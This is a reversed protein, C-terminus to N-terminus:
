STIFQNTFAKSVDVDTKLLHSDRLFKYTAQWSNADTYGLGNKSTMDSQWYSLTEQLVKRQLQTDGHQAEPIYALAISFGEDPDNIVDQMGKITAQVFARVVNPDQNILTESTILGDSALPIYDSVRIINTKIGQQELQIPENNGYGVGVQVKDQQVAQVQTFGIEQVNLDNETMNNAYLLAQLGIYSAGFRGPVGVSKGKLDAPRTINEAVKSFLVIPFKQSNTAVTVVPLGQGRALLVSDGSALGFQVTNQAVRQVVDTEYNYDFTVKIGSQAYYGKKDAVYFPAFQVNPVYPMAMVIEHTATNQNAAGATPQAPAAGATPAGAQGPAVTMEAPPQVETPQGATPATATPETAGCAALLLASLVVYMMKRFM